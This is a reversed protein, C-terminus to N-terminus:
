EWVEKLVLNHEVRLVAQQDGKNFRESILIFPRLEKLLCNLYQNKEQNPLFDYLKQYVGSTLLM